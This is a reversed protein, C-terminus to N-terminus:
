INYVVYWVRYVICMTRGFFLYPRGVSDSGVSAGVVVVAVVVAFLM